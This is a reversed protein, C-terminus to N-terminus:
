KAHVTVINSYIPGQSTLDSKKLHFRDMTDAGFIRNGMLNSLTDFDIKIQKKLRFLTLHPVFIQDIRLGFEELDLISSITHSLNMMKRKGDDDIGVWIIRPFNKNPFTGINNYLIKFSEFEVRLLKETISKVIDKHIEGLFLITFHFKDKEIPKVVSLDWRISSAMEKQLHELATTNSADM